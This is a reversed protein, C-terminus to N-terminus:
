QCCSSSLLPSVVKLVATSSSFVALPGVLEWLNRTRPMSVATCSFQLDRPISWTRKDTVVSSPRRPVTPRRPTQSATLLVSSSPDHEGPLLRTEGPLVPTHPTQFCSGCLGPATPCFFLHQTLSVSHTSSRSSVQGCCPRACTSRLQSPSSVQEVLFLQDICQRPDPSPCSLVEPFLPVLM